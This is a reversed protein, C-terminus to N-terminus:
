RVKARKATELKRTAEVKRLADLLVRSTISAVPLSGIEPLVFTELIWRNKSATM